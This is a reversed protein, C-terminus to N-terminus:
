MLFPPQMWHRLTPLDLLEAVAVTRDVEPYVVAPEDGSGGGSVTGTGGTSQTGPAPSETGTGAPDEVAIVTVATACVTAAVMIVALLFALLKKKM